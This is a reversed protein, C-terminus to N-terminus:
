TENIYYEIIERYEEIEEKGKESLEYVARSVRQFWGYFNDQLLKATKKNDTGLAKLEKISLRGNRELLAAIQLALERYATVLREGSVGGTNYDGYRANFEKLMLNRKKGSLRRSMDRSFPKPELVEEVKVKDDGTNELKIDGGGANNAKQKDAAAKEIKAEGTIHSKFKLDVLLLGVELRRLLYLINKWRKTFLIRSNKPVAIYVIDATRQRIAAQLIVDLNLSTKMEVVLFIDDKVAAVDCYKVEGKVDWGQQILYNRVPVYLEKEYIKNKDMGKGKM